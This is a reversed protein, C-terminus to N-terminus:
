LLSYRSIRMQLGAYTNKHQKFTGMMYPLRASQLPIEPLLSCVEEFVEEARQLPNIWEGNHLCPAFDKGQLRLLAQARMHNVCIFSANSYAEDLGVVFPFQHIWQLEDMASHIKKFSPQSYKFGGVNMSEKEKLIAWSRNRIWPSQDSPDIQLIMYVQTWADM